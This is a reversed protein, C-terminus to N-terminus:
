ASKYKIKFNCLILSAKIPRRNCWHVWLLSSTMASPHLISETNHLETLLCCFSLRILSLSQHVKVVLVSEEHPGKQLVQLHLGGNLDLDLDLDLDLRWRQAGDACDECTNQLSQEERLRWMWCLWPGQRLSSKGLSSLFGAASRRSEPEVPGAIDADKQLGSSCTTDQMFSGLHFWFVSELFCFFFFGMSCQLFYLMANTTIWLSFSFPCSLHNKM